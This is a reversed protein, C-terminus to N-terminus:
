TLMLLRKAIENIRKTDSLTRELLTKLEGRLKNREEASAVLPEPSLFGAIILLESVDFRLPRAILQLTRPSPSREGKEIRGLHSVSVGSMKSLRKLSLPIQKRQERIVKGINERAKPRAM